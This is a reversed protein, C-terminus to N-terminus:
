KVMLISINYLGSQNQMQYIRSQTLTANGTKFDWARVPNGFVDYEMADFRISGQEGYPVEVGDKYM